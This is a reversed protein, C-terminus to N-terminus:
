SPEGEFKPRCYPTLREGIKFTILRREPPPAGVDISLMYSKRNIFDFADICFHTM